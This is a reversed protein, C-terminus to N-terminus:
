FGGALLTLQTGVLSCSRFGTSGLGKGEEGVMWGSSLTVTLYCGRGWKRCGRSDRAPLYLRTDDTIMGGVHAEPREGALSHEVWMWSLKSGSGLGACSLVILVPPLHITPLASVSHNWITLTCCVPLIVLSFVHMNVPMGMTGSCCRTASGPSSGLARSKPGLRWWSNTM